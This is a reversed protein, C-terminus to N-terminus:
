ETGGEWDRPVEIWVREGKSGLVFTGGNAAWVSGTEADKDSITAIRHSEGKIRHMLKRM